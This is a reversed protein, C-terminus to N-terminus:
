SSVNYSKKTLGNLQLAELNVLLITQRQGTSSYLNFSKFHLDGSM